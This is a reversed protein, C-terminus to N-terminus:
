KTVIKNDKVKLACELLVEDTSDTPSFLRHVGVIYNLRSLIYNDSGFLLFSHVCENKSVCLVTQM